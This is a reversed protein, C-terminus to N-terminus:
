KGDFVSTLSKDVKRNILSLYNNVTQIKAHGSMQMVSPIDVKNRLLLTIFTARARHSKIVEWRQKYQGNEDKVNTIDNFLDSAKFVQKLERNFHQNTFKPLNEYKSLIRLATQSLPIQVLANTKKNAKTYVGDIIFQKELRILDSFRLGLNCQLVFLDRIVELKADLPVQELQKLEDLTLIEIHTDNRKISNNHQKVVDYARQNDIHNHQLSWNLFEGLISLRKKYSNPKQKGRTLWDGKPREAMAFLRLKEMWPHNIDNYRIEQGLFSQFDELLNGTSNYDKLSSDAGFEAYHREKSKIFQKFLGLVSNDSNIKKALRKQLEEADIIRGNKFEEQIIQNAVAVVSDLRQQKELINTQYTAFPPAVQLKQREINFKIRMDLSIGTPFRMIKGRYSYYVVVSKGNVRLEANKLKM